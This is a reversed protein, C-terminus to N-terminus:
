NPPDTWGREVWHRDSYHTSHVFALCSCPQPSFGSADPQVPLPPSQPPPPPLSAANAGQDTHTHIDRYETTNLNHIFQKATYIQSKLIYIRGWYLSCLPNYDRKVAKRKMGAKRYLRLCASLCFSVQIMWCVLFVSVCHCEFIRSMWCLMRCCHVLLAISDSRHRGILMLEPACCCQRSDWQTTITLGMPVQRLSLPMARFSVTEPTNQWMPRPEQTRKWNNNNTKREKKWNKIYWQSPPHPPTPPPRREAAAGWDERDM